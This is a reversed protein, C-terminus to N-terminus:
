EDRDVEEIIRLQEERMDIEAQIQAETMTTTDLMEPEHRPTDEPKMELLDPDIAKYFWGEEAGPTSVALLLDPDIRMVAEFIEDPISKCEDMLYVCPRYRVVGDNCRRRQGHFGETTGGKACKYGKWRSGNPAMVNLNGKATSISWGPLDRIIPELQIIFLQERVQDESGSTSFVYCGPFNIMASLGAIPLLVSTKGSENNTSAIVRSGPRAFACLIDAQWRYLPDGCWVSAQHLPHLGPQWLLESEKM